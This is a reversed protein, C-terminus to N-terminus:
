CKRGLHSQGCFVLDDLWCAEDDRHYLLIRGEDASNKARHYRAYILEEDIGVIEVKGSTHSIIFRSTRALGGNVRTANQFLKYSQVLPLTYPQNGFTPRCQFVYYQPCGARATLSFLEALIVADDNIGRIIPCQNVCRVGSHTLRDICALAPDTLERPHDFHAMVYIPASATSYRSLTTLLEADDLIRWPNFAPLKSGIRITQVHAISRLSGLIETLRRTSLMLPDGGSLLVDTIEPHNRIYEVGHAIDISVEQNDDKFIRKRFCYRCYAACVDSCLLLATDRYKHQVGRAVTISAEDSPDAKGWEAQEGEHPVIMRRLPDDPDLWNILRTYYNNARFHYLDAIVELTPNSSGSLEPVQGLTNYHVTPRDPFPLAQQYTISNM